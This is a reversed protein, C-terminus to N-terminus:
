QMPPNHPPTPVGMFVSGGPILPNQQQQADSPAAQQQEPSPVVPLDFGSPWLQNSPDLSTGQVYSDWADWDLNGSLDMVNGSAGFFSFPSTVGGGSGSGEPPPYQPVYSPAEGMNMSGGPTNPQPRESFLAATNPTLGGSSLMGLTMAASHEPKIDDSNFGQSERTFDGAGMSQYQNPPVQTIVPNAKQRNIWLNHFMTSINISAKYAEISTDKLELWINNANELARLMETQRERDWMIFYDGSSTSSEKTSHYLDLCIIMAAQLFDSTTLSPAFWRVSRLRGTPSQTERHLTAQHSLLVMSADICSLRSRSFRPNERARALFKRHLVCLAKHYLLDLNYRQVILAAPEAVSEEVPIFRLHPPIREREERLEGDLKMVDEYIRPELSNFQELIRGFVSILRAKTIMFSIPTPETLPRSPPLETTAEGFEEDFLNRPIDTDCECSRIMSPFGLQFSLSSDMQKIFAWVRRRMEGQFPTVDPYPKPDRHYGMRMAFRVIMGGVVWASIETDKGCAHEGHLHLILTEITHSAPKTYDALVLAQATRSKFVEAMENSKGQYEPPEDGARAYSQMALCMVAFLLGIWVLKTSGPDAWHQEYEKQFTPGHIMRIVPDYSNFYRVILKDAAARPPISSLLENKDIPGAAGFLFSSLKTGQVENAAKIKILQEEYQKKHEAWYSKVEAIDSLIAAWHTDAVYFSNHKDVKMFGFSKRVEEVDSEDGEAEEKIMHDEEDLDHPYEASGTSASAAASLAAAAAGPGASGAGNSM